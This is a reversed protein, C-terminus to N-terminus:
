LSDLNDYKRFLSKPHLITTVRDYLLRAIMELLRCMREDKNYHRSLMWVLELGEMIHPIADTMEYFDHSYTITKLHREITSLFRSVDRAEAMLRSVELQLFEMSPVTDSGVSSLAKM